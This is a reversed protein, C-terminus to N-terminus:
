FTLKRKMLNRQVLLETIFDKENQWETLKKGDYLEKSILNNLESYRNLLNSKTEIYKKYINSSFLFLLLYCLMLSLIKSDLSLIYVVILCAQINKFMQINSVIEVTEAIDFLNQLKKQNKNYTKGM